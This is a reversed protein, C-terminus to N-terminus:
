AKLTLGKETVWVPKAIFAPGHEGHHQLAVALAKDETVMTIKDDHTLVPCVKEAGIIQAISPM